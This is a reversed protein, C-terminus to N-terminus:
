ATPAAEQSDRGEDRGSAVPEKPTAALTAPTQGRTTVHGAEAPRPAHAVDRWWPADPVKAAAPLHGLPWRASPAM